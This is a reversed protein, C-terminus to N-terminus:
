GTTIADALPAVATNGGALAEGMDASGVVGTPSMATGRRWALLRQPM